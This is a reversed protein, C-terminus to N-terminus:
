RSDPGLVVRITHQGEDRPVAIPNRSDVVVGDLEVREVGQCIRHPNDVTVVCRAHELRVNVEYGPWEHPICPNIRLQGNVISVGLIAELAVRYM